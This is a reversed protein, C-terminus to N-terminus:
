YAQSKPRGISLSLLVGTEVAPLGLHSELLSDDFAGSPVASLGHHTAALCINQGIFGAEMAVVRYAIPMQYKWMTRGFHAVLFVIAAAGAPWRQTALMKKVDAKGSRVLGLTHGMSDYHYFGASLGEVRSAYVYLEFPNRAGGSPTMALPLRGYDEDQTFKVIGNGAFLCDALMQRTMTDSSFKRRSRRKRMLAFPEKGVDTPPLMIVRRMGRNSQTVPPSKRWAKRKKMFLRGKPGTIFRTNRISFHFFGAPDGWHWERRYIDDLEAEPSGKIIIAKLKLLRQIDGAIRKGSSGRFHRFMYPATKWDDLAALFDLCEASCAFKRGGLFNHIVFQGAQLSVTLTSARRFKLTPVRRRARKM